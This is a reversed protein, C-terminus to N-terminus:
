KSSLSMCFSISDEKGREWNLGRENRNRNGILCKTSVNVPTARCGVCGAKM